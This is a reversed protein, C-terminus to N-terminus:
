AFGPLEAVIRRYNCPCCYTDTPHYARPGETPAFYRLRRGDPSQAAFLTNHITREMADGWVALGRQRLLADFIRLQYATACTEGLAGRGDQDATWIEWQGGSGTIMLGDGHLMFDAARRPIRMLREDGTARYQELLALSRALYAYMHGEIGVRRGIVIPLDWEPLARTEVVFDLYRREGTARHLALMTRELGTVAVHPAVSNKGWDPPLKSWNAIIWDAVRRAGELSKANGFLEHDRLLGWAIYQVEHIDWLATMRRNEPFLGPYGDADQHKLVEAVLHDKLAIVDPNATYAAFTAAADLLKGLGIYSEKGGKRAAFPPLFDKDADLVLLNNTITVEIRRGIEGGLQVARLDLPAFADGAFSSAAGALLAVACLLMPRILPHIWTASRRKM